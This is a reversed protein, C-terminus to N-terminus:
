KRTPLRITADDKGATKWFEIFAAIPTTLLYTLIGALGVINNELRIYTINEGYPPRARRQWAFRTGVSYM